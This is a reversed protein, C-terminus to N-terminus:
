DRRPRPIMGLITAVLSLTLIAPAMEIIPKFEEFRITEWWPKGEEEAKKLKATLEDAEEPSIDGREEAQKIEAKVEDITKKLSEKAGELPTIIVWYLIAGAVVAGIIAGAIFAWPTGKSQLVATYKDGEVRDSGEKVRVGFAGGAGNIIKTIGDRIFGDTAWPFRILFVEVTASDKWEGDAPTTIYYPLQVTTCGTQQIEFAQLDTLDISFAAKIAKKIETLPLGQLDPECLTQTQYSYSTIGM